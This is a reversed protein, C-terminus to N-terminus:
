EFSPILILKKVTNTLTTDSHKLIMSKQLMKADLVSITQLNKLLHPYKDGKYDLLLLWCIKLISVLLLTQINVKFNWTSAGPM